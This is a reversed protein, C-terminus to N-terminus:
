KLYQEFLETFSVKEQGVNFEQIDLSLMIRNIL